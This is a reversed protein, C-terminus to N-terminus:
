WYDLSISQGHFMDYAQDRADQIAENNERDVDAPRWPEEAQLYSRMKEEYLSGLSEPSGHATVGPSPTPLLLQQPGYVEPSTSFNGGQDSFSGFNGQRFDEPLHVARRRQLNRQLPWAYGTTPHGASVDEYVMPSQFVPNNATPRNPFERLMDFSYTPVVQSHDWFNAAMPQPNSGQATVTSGMLSSWPYQQDSCPQDRMLTHDTPRYQVEIRLNSGPDAEYGLSPATPPRWSLAQDMGDTGWQEQYPQNPQM